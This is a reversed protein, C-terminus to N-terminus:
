DIMRKIFNAQFRMSLNKKENKKFKLSESKLAFKDEFYLYLSLTMCGIFFILWYVKVQIPISGEYLDGTLHKFYLLVEVITIMHALFINLGSRKDKRKAIYHWYDNAGLIAYLGLIWIRVGLIWHSAPLQLNYKNFFNSLDIVFTFIMFWVVHLFNRASGLMHWKGENKYQKRATFFYKFKELVTMNAHQENPEMFWHIHPINFKKIIWHGLLIGVLNMGLVDLILSDWWCENFNALWYRFTLEQIEFGISMIWVMVQNRFIFAKVMWGFFHCVVYVDISNVINAFKSTPNEPTYVRCDVAYDGEYVHGKLSTDVVENLFKKMNESSLSLIFTINILYALALAQIQRWPNARQYGPKPLAVCGIYVILINTAIIAKRIDTIIPNTEHAIFEFNNMLFYLIITLFFLHTKGHSVKPFSKKIHKSLDVIDNETTKMGKNDLQAGPNTKKAFIGM